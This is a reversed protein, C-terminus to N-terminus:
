APEVNCICSEVPELRIKAATRLCDHVVFLLGVNDLNVATDRLATDESRNLKCGVSFIDHVHDISMLRSQVQVGVISM